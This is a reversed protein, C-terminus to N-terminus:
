PAGGGGPQFYYGLCNRVCCFCYVKNIFWRRCEVSGCVNFVNFWNLAHYLIITMCIFFVKERIANDYFVSKEPWVTGM